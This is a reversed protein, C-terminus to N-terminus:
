AVSMHTESSYDDWGMDGPTLDEQSETLSASENDDMSLSQDSVSSSMDLSSYDKSEVEMTSGTSESDGMSEGTTMPKVDLRQINGAALASAVCLSALLIVTLFKM